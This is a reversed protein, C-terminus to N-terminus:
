KQNRLQQEYLNMIEFYTAGKYEIDRSKSTDQIEVDYKFSRAGVLRFEGLGRTRYVCMNKKKTDILVVRADGSSALALIGDTDWGGGAAFASPTPILCYVCALLALIGGLLANQIWLNRRTEM